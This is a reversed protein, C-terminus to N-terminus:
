DVVPFTFDVCYASVLPPLMPQQEFRLSLHRPPLGRLDFFAWGTADVAASALEDDDAWLSWTGSVGVAVRVRLADGTLTAERSAAEVALPDQVENPRYHGHPLV